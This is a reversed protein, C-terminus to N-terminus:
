LEDVIACSSSSLSVSTDRLHATRTVDVIEVCIYRAKGVDHHRAVVSLLDGERVREAQQEMMALPIYVDPNGPSSEMFAFVDFLKTVKGTLTIWGETESAVDTSPVAGAQVDIIRIAKYRSSGYIHEVARVLLIDGIM